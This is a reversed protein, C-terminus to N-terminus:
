LQETKYIKLYPSPDNIQFYLDTLDDKKLATAYVTNEDALVFPLIAHRDWHLLTALHNNYFDLAKYNDKHKVTQFDELKNHSILAKKAAINLKTIAREQSSAFSYYLTDHPKNYNIDFVVIM